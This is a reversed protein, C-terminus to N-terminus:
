GCATLKNAKGILDNSQKLLQNVNSTSAKAKEQASAFSNAARNVTTFEGSVNSIDVKMNKMSQQIDKIADRTKLTDQVQQRSFIPREDAM